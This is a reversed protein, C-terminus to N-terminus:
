AVAAPGPDADEGPLDLGGRPRPVSLQRVLDLNPVAEVALRLVEALAAREEGPKALLCLKGIEQLAYAMRAGHQQERQVRRALGAADEIWIGGSPRSDEM